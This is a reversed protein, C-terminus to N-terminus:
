VSEADKHEEACFRCGDDCCGDYHANEAEADEYCAACLGVSSESRGTERTSKGCEKCQYCGSGRGFRNAKRAM